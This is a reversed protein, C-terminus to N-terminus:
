LLDEEKLHVVPPAAEPGDPLPLDGGCGDGGCGDGASRQAGPFVGDIAAGTAAGLAEQLGPLPGIGVGDAM